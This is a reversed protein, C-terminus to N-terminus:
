PKATLGRTGMWPGTLATAIQAGGSVPCLVVKSARTVLESGPQQCAASLQAATEGFRNQGTSYFTYSDKGVTWLGGALVLAGFVSTVSGTLSLSMAAGTKFPKLYDM